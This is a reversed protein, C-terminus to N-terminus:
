GVPVVTRGDRRNKRELGSVIDSTTVYATVNTDKSLLRRLLENQERLLANQEANADAVGEAIGAIIQENNVVASRNGITGVMEPGAERAVFMQGAEPFGGTALLPIEPVSITKLSDFPTFGLIEIGKIRELASNIGNFPVAIVKNLGTILGNVVAKFATVIGDKIDVFIQGATSFVKVIGQWAKEFTNKFFSAVTSFVSKVGEWAATAKDLFGNWLNSFLTGIPQIVTENFWSGITSFVSKISNWAEVARTKIDTWLGSFFNAVPQIVTENFWASVLSWAKEIVEWCGIAIVGINYFIDSITQWISSFLNSFWQVAPSFFEAIANWCVSAATSIGEWLGSFFNAVPQIVYTDFWEAVVSWVECIGGWLNVFFQGISSLAQSCWDVISDWNQVILIVLDTLAGVALGILAGIGATVPGGCAGIIAGIGAGTLTAGADILVANLWNLGEEIADWVGVIFMPVGAVIAGVTAGIVSSGLAKGILAGGAVVAGGGGLTELLNQWDIGDSIVRILGKVEIVLGTVALTLGTVLAIASSGGGKALAKSLDWGMMGLKIAGVYWLIEELKDIIGDVYANDLPVETFAYTSSGSTPSSGSSSSNDQLANIEDIGLLSKKLRKNAETATDAAEAYETTVKIAKTWTSKGALRAIVQNVVNLLDVFKDIVWEIAPTLAEILPSVMAGLSAKLYNFSTTLTDLSKSFSGEFSKSYQYVADIGEKFSSVIGSIIANIMRYMVRASFKKVLGSLKSTITDFAKGIAAKASSALSKIKGLAKTATNAFSGWRSETESIKDGLEDLRSSVDTVAQPEIITDNAFGLSAPSPMVSDAAVGLSNSVSVNGVSQLASLGNALETLKSMDVGKLCDVAAGLDVIREAPKGSFKLNSAENLAKIGDALENLKAMSGSNIKDAAESIKTLYKQAANLGKGSAVSQLKELTKILKELGNIASSSDSTVEIRLADVVNDDM